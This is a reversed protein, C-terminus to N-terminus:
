ALAGTLAFIDQPRLQLRRQVSAVSRAGSARREYHLLTLAACRLGTLLQVINSNASHSEDERLTTDRVWHSCNEIQWHGRM